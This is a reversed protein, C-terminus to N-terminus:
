GLSSKGTSYEMNKTTNEMEALMEFAYDHARIAQYFEPNLELVAKLQEIGTKWECVSAQFRALALQFSVDVYHPNEELQRQLLQIQAEIALKGSTQLTALFRTRRDEYSSKAGAAITERVRRFQSFAERVAGKDLTDMALQFEATAYSSDIVTAKTFLSKARSVFDKAYEKDIGKVGNFLCILASSYYADVYYTNLELAHELQKRSESIKGFWALALGYANRYDAYMPKQSVAESLKECARVYDGMETLCLGHFYLGEADTPNLDSAIGYLQEAEDYIGRSEFVDALYRILQSSGEEEVQKLYSFMEEIQAKLATVANSVCANVDGSVAKDLTPELSSFILRGNEYLGTTVSNETESFMSEIAFERGSVTFRATESIAETAARDGISREGHMAM